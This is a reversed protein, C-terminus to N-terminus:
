HFHRLEQDAAKEVGSGAIERRLLPMRLRLGALMEGNIVEKVKRVIFRHDCIAEKIIDGSVGGIGRGDGDDVAAIGGDGSVTAETVRM